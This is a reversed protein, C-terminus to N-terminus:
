IAGYAVVNLEFPLGSLNKFVSLRAMFDATLKQAAGSRPKYSSVYGEDKDSFYNTLVWVQWAGKERKVSSLKWPATPRQLTTNEPNSYRVLNENPLIFDIEKEYKGFSTHSVQEENCGLLLGTSTLVLALKQFFNM